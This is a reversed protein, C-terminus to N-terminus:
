AFRLVVLTMGSFDARDGDRIQCRFEFALGASVPERMKQIPGQRWDAQRFIV